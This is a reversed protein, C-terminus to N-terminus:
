IYGGKQLNWLRRYLGPMNILNNHTGVQVIKGKDLVVIKDANMITSLRHAIIISTRGEMLKKLANQIEYETQSDLSSTAEDLVLIKKDALIARAISVRQKEGGSLKIGREGVITREKHSFDAVIKDLQAFRMAAMVEDKSASLKSFKINNYITDDFLIAEQPVISMESRLSEKKFNKINKGDVLIEGEQVDYLRYLLKILTTKGSGSHGVFAVKQNKDIKLSFNDFLKRKGFAFGIKKFEIEGNRVRLIDSGDKIENEIKAFKFLSEFDAMVQYFHRIGWIFGFMPGLLGIYTTYIFVLTGTSIENNLLQMLPFYVLLFTGVGIILFQVPELWRFYNWHNMMASKTKQALLEYKKNIAREKGFYKVSDINTFIDSINAKEIDENEIAVLNANQQIIQLFISYGVFIVITLFVILASVWSFYSLSIGVVILQFVLPAFNFVFIDTMSEIARGGRILKSILSGTKNSTHFEHSLGVLHNFFKKKLDIILEASLVNDLHVYVWKGAVRFIVIGAYVAGVVLLINVFNNKLLEGASYATGNDIIVKFLFKDAVYTAEILLILFLLWFFLKKYRRLIGWYLNLNYKFDIKNNKKKKM